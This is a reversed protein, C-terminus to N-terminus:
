RVHSWAEEEPRNWDESLATESIVDSDADLISFFIPSLGRNLFRPRDGIKKRIWEYKRL